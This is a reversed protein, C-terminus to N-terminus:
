RRVPRRLKRELRWMMVARVAEWSVALLMGLTAPVLMVLAVALLPDDM